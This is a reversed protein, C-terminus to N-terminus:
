GRRSGGPGADEPMASHVALMPSSQSVSPVHPRLREALPVAAVEFRQPARVALVLLAGTFWLVAFAAM